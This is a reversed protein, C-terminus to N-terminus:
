TKSPQTKVQGIFLYDEKTSWDLYAEHDVRNGRSTCPAHEQNTIQFQVMGGGDRIYESIESKEDNTSSPSFFQELLSELQKM